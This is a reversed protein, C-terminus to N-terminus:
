DAIAQRVVAIFRDANRDIQASTTRLVKWPNAMSQLRLDIARDRRLRDGAHYALGDVYIAVHQDPFAFDAITFVRGTAPDDIPHQKIPAFGATTLLNLCRHELPSACGAAYAELWPRPDNVEAASLPRSEPPVDSLGALTSTVLPWNLRSHYRQNTYTKLCRYCATECDPHDLHHLAAAAVRDFEAAMKELYGSGGINPDVFTIVGQKFATGNAVQERLGEWLMTLDDAGGAALAYHREAGALLAYGLTLAWKDLAQQQERDEADGPWPILLRLTEVQAETYLALGDIPQGKLACNTAHGFPDDQTTRRPAPNRRRTGPTLPPPNIIKGCDPCLRYGARNGTADPVGENLWAVKERRRWELQWGEPLRWRGAIPQEGEAQWSPHVEVLNRGAVREEEESGASEDPRAIFGAYNMAPLDQGPGIHGCRPCSASLQPDYALNCRGCHRYLWTPESGQPNWPSSLDLGTVKWRKGRAYVPAGPRYQNLGSARETSIVSWEDEDGLLRVTAPEVPFEYGPLLGSEALRRLPYASGADLQGSDDGEQIGLLHNIIKGARAAAWHAGGIEAWAAVSQHLRAVQAATRNFAQQVRAPLDDLLQELDNRTLGALQLIGDPFADRAIALTEPKALSLGALLDDIKEQRVGGQFTTYEAMKGAIGPEALGFAISYLHRTLADRNGLSFVPAPVAGAIMEGPHQFFYQDHPTNRTYGVVLGVRQDRGARGGRQAYNDPRPPVNRLAVAELGGVHIGLELTPSCALVNIPQDKSKFNDEIDKRRAAPIQATHEAAKLPISEKDLARRAYRSTQVQEDSCPQLRGDECRPCRPQEAPRAWEPLHVMHGCTGCRLRTAATDLSLQIMGANVQYLKIPQGKFGHLEAPIVFQEDALAQILRLTRDATLQGLRTAIQQPTTQRGRLAWVPQVRVGQPVDGEFRLAPRGDTILPLGTPKKLRREWAAWKLVQQKNHGDPHFQLLTRSLAGVKRFSDLLKLTVYGLQDASLGLDNDSGVAYQAVFDELQVYDVAVLGLNELSARYRANVALDDLLPAEEWAFYGEREEPARPIRDGPALHPNDRREAGLAGLQEVLANLLLPGRDHLLHTVRSRMRDYRAAFEIFRAQHAADQRSDAFILVRKKDDVRSPLAEMLGETLVKVAASTGLSVRTIIPRPGASGGCNPCRRRSPYLSMVHESPVNPIFTLTAVDWAGDVIDLKRERSRKPGDAGAAALVEYVAGDDSERIVDGDISEDDEPLEQWAQRRFLLWEAQDEALANDADIGFSEAYPQLVGTGDSSGRLRWFDAGCNRCLYLPATAQGCAPCNMEGRPYLAGCDPNLCRYFEWGGRVFRHARLRLAGPLASGSDIAALAAGVRLGLEVEAHIVDDPWTARDPVQSRVLQVLDSISRAGEGLWRNLDWLLRCRRAAEALPTDAPLNALAAVIHRLTQPDDLDLDSRAYPAGAYRADLPIVVELKVESIVRM